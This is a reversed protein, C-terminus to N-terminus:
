AKKRRTHSWSNSPPKCSRPSIPQSSSTNNAAKSLAPSTSSTKSSRPFAAANRCSPFPFVGAAEADGPNQRRGFKGGDVARFRHRARLEHSVSSVFNSKLESLELQGATFARHAAFLGALAAFTSALIMAGFWMTRQHQRAYLVDRDTLFVRVQFPYANPSAPFGELRGEAEGLVPLLAFDKVTPIASGGITVGVPPM